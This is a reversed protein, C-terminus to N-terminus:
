SAQGVLQERLDPYSSQESLWISLFQRTFQADEIAGIFQGNLYFRSGLEADVRLTVDDDEQVDPWIEELRALWQEHQQEYQDLKRWEKRTRNVLAEAAIDRRYTIRLALDPEVGQFQGDPTFLRSDYITWFMVKLSAQGVPRLNEVPSAQLGSTCVFSLSLILANLWRM